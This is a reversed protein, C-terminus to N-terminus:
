GLRELREAVVDERRADAALMARLDPSYLMDALGQPLYAVKADWKRALVYARLKVVRATVPWRRAMWAHVALIKRWFQEAGMLFYCAFVAFLAALISGFVLGPKLLLLLVLSTLLVAKRDPRYGMVRGRAVSIFSQLRSPAATATKRGPARASSNKNPREVDQQQELSAMLSRVASVEPETELVQVAEKDTLTM